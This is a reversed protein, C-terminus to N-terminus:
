DLRLTSCALDVMQPENSACVPSQENMTATLVVQWSQSMGVQVVLDRGAHMTSFLICFMICNVQDTSLARQTLQKPDEPPMMWLALVLHMTNTSPHRFRKVCFGSLVAHRITSPTTMMRGTVGLLRLETDQLVAKFLPTLTMCGKLLCHSDVCKGSSLTRAWSRKQM